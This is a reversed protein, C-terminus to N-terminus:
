PRNTPKVAQLAREIDERTVILSCLQRQKVPGSADWENSTMVLITIYEGSVTAHSKLDFLLYRSSVECPVYGKGM